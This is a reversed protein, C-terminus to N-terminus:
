AKLIEIKLNYLKKIEISELKGSKANVKLMKISELIDDLLENEERITECFFAKIGNKINYKVNTKDTVIVSNDVSALLGEYFGFMCTYQINIILAGNNLEKLIVEKFSKFAKKNRVKCNRNNM